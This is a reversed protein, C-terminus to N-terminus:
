DIPGSEISSDDAKYSARNGKFTGREDRLLEVLKKLNLGGM